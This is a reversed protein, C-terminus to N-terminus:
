QVAGPDFRDLYAAFRDRVADLDLGFDAPDPRHEGHRGQPHADVWARMADGAEGTLEWGAGAYIREIERLPDRVLDDMAVDVFRHEGLQERTAMGREVGEAWLEVQRPGLALASYHESGMRGILAMLDCVSPLVKAPDRHTWVFTAGPYLADLEGLWFVDSPNKLQWRRPPCRWQLLQLVERHFAYAPAMACDLLWDLYSPIWAMGDLQFCRMSLGMVDIAEAPSMAEADYLAKLEPLMAHAADMGAQVAAIRPDTTYTAAEPPPTLGASEWERLSRTHPDQALLHSLATTGTRPLGMVVVPPELQEAAIEPHRARWDVVRLREALWGAIRADLSARGVDNLRAETDLADCLVELGDRWAGTGFDDLGTADLAGDVFRQADFGTSGM